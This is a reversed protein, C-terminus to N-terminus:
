NSFPAIVQSFLAGYKFGFVFRRSSFDHFDYLGCADLRWFDPSRRFRLRRPHSPSASGANSTTGCPMSVTKFWPQLHRAISPASTLQFNSCCRD